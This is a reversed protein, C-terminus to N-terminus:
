ADARRIGMGREIRMHCKHCLPRLNSWEYRAGGDRMPVIHHVETARAGCEDCEPHLSLIEARVRQWKIDYGRETAGGRAERHTGRGGPYRRWWKTSARGGGHKECYRQGNPILAPCGQKACPHPPKIPM